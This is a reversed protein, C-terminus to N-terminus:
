SVHRHAKAIPNFIVCRHEWSQGLRDLLQRMASDDPVLLDAGDIALPFHHNGIEFAIRVALDRDRPRVALVRETAAEVQLYWTAEIAIIAGPELTTGTTLALAIERGASTRVRRRAWRREESTMVLTDREKGILLERSTPDPLLEILLM